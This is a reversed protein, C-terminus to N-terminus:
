LRWRNPKLCTTPHFEFDSGLKKQQNSNFTLAQLSLQRRILDNSCQEIIRMDDYSKLQLMLSGQIVPSFIIVSFLIVQVQRQQLQFLRKLSKFNFFFVVSTLIRKVLKKGKYFIIVTERRDSLQGSILLTM